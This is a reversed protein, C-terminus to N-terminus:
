VGSFRVANSSIFSGVLRKQENRGGKQKGRRGVEVPASALPKRTKNIWGPLSLLPKQSNKWGEGRVAGIGL